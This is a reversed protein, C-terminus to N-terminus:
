GLMLYKGDENNMLDFTKRLTMIMDTTILSFSFLDFSEASAQICLRKDESDEERRLHRGRLLFNLFHFVFGVPFSFFHGAM